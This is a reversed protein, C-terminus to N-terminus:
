EVRLTDKLHEMAEKKQFGRFDVLYHYANGTSGCGHCYYVGNAVNVSMSPSSDDHHPNFCKIARETGGDPLQIGDEWLLREITSLYASM